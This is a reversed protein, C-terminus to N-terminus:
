LSPCWDCKHRLYEKRLISTDVADLLLRHITSAVSLYVSVRRKVLEEKSVGSDKSRTELRALLNQVSRERSIAIQHSPSPQQGVQLKHEERLWLEYEERAFKVVQYLEHLSPCHQLMYPFLKENEVRFYFRELSSSDLDSQLDNRWDHLMSRIEDLHEQKSSEGELPEGRLRAVESKPILWAGHKGVRSGKIDGRRLAEYVRDTSRGLIKALEKVNYFEKEAAMRFM